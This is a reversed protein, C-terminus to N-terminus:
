DEKEEAPKKLPPAEYSGLLMFAIALAVLIIFGVIARTTFKKAAWPLIFVMVQNILMGIMAGAGFYAGWGEKLRFPM